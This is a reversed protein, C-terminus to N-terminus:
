QARTPGGAASTALPRFSPPHRRSSTPKPRPAWGTQWGISFVNFNAGYRVVAGTSAALKISHRRGVPLVLTAGVRSNSQRDRNLVGQITTRGGAYYTADFAAWLQRRFNYSVHSQFTGIPAQTRVLTGPYFSDNGTFFWVGAYLDVLWRQRIPQSV